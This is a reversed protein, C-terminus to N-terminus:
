QCIRRWSMWPHWRWTYHEAVALLDEGLENMPVVVRPPAEVAMLDEEQEDLPVVVRSPAEEELKAVEVGPLILEGGFV